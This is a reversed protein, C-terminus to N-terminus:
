SISCILSRYYHAYTLTDHLCHVVRHDTTKEPQDHILTPNWATFAELLTSVDLSRHHCSALIDQSWADLMNRDFRITSGAPILRVHEKAHKDVYAKVNLWAEFENPASPHACEALLGNSTHMTQIYEDPQGDWAIVTHFGNDLPILNTDTAIMGVELIRDIGPTLGTTETDIWLFVTQENM